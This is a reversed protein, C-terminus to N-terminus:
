ICCMYGFAASSSHLCTGCTAVRLLVLSALDEDDFPDDSDFDDYTTDGCSSANDSVSTDAMDDDEKNFDIPVFGKWDEEQGAMAGVICRFVCYVWCCRIM